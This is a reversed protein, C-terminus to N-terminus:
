CLDPAAELNPFDLDWYERAFSFARLVHPAISPGIPTSDPDFRILVISGFASPGLHMTGDNPADISVARVTEAEFVFGTADDDYKDALPLIAGGHRRSRAATVVIEELDEADISLDGEITLRQLDAIPLDAARAQIEHGTSVRPNLETPLFGKATCVGDIGFAGLYSYQEALVSGVRRAVDRMSRSINQPPTWFNGAQAYLFAPRETHRLIVMEIPLFVAIGKPTIFAHISCPLGDLFPMVRVKEARGRFWEVAVAVDDPDRVWRTYEGGGHWGDSNDAVWVTGHRNALGTAAAPASDVPVTRSPSTQIGAQDWLADITTKDELATWERHRAGYPSRWEIGDMHLFGVDLIRANGAPDFADVAALLEPSPTDLTAQFARIGEMMTTGSTRTYFTRDAPPLDGLGEMGAVVMVAEAGWEKLREVSKTAGAAVDPTIIWKRGRHVEAIRRNLAGLDM